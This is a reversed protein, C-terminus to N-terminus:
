TTNGSFISDFGPESHTQIELSRGRQYFNIVPDDVVEHQFRVCLGCQICRERDLIILEGLPMDKALRKKDEYIFRSKGPGHLLTLDQLACEGGKDCIPCDLPHSTLIFELMSKHAENAKESNTKVE